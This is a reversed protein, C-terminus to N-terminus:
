PQPEKIRDFLKFRRIFIELFSSLDIKLGKGAFFYMLVFYVGFGSSFAMAAGTIRNVYYSQVLFSVSASVISFILSPAIDSVISVLSERYRRPIVLLMGIGQILYLISILVIVCKQSVFFGLAMALVRLVAAVVQIVAGRQVQNRVLLVQGSLWGISLFSFPVLLIQLFPIAENWKPGLILPVAIPSIVASISLIPFLVAMLIRCLRAHMLAIEHDSSRLSHTFFAGLLPNTLSDCAYRSVQSAFSYSGLAVSGFCLSFISNELVRGLLEAFRVILTSGSTMLHGYLSSINYTFRPKVWGYYNLIAARVAFNAIYQAALSWAGAGKLALILVVFTGILTASLDSINHYILNGRRVLRADAQVSFALLPLSLSLLMMIGVLSRQGSIWALFFGSCIVMLAMIVCIGQLMWFATSWFETNSEEERAMSAGLGGDALLLFFLVTPLALSYEGYASPGLLGALVPIMILQIATKISNVSASLFTNKAFQRHREKAKAAKSLDSNKESADFRAEVDSIAAELLNLQFVHKEPGDFGRVVKLQRKLATRAIEYFDQRSDATKDHLKCVGAWILPAYDIESSDPQM